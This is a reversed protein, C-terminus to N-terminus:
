QSTKNTNRTEVYIYIFLGNFHGGHIGICSPNPGLSVHITISIFFM